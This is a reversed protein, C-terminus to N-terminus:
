IRHVLRQWRTGAIFDSIFKQNFQVTNKLKSSSFWCQQDMRCNVEVDRSKVLETFKEQKELTHLGDKGDTMCLIRLTAEILDSRKSYIM